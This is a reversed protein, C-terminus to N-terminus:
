FNSTKKQTKMKPFDEPNTYKSYYLEGPIFDVNKVSSNEETNNEAIAWRLPGSVNACFYAKQNNLGNLMRTQDERDVTQRDISIRGVRIIIFTKVRRINYKNRVDMAVM